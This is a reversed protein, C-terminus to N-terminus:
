LPFEEVEGLFEIEPDEELIAKLDADLRGLQDSLDVFRFRKWSWSRAKELSTSCAFECEGDKDHARYCSLGITKDPLCVTVWWGWDECCISPSDYARARLKEQLYEALAKGYTGPNVLEEEEGPLPPFKASRIHLFNAM